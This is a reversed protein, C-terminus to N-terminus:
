EVEKAIVVLRRINTGVPTCTMLTLTKENEDQSLVSVDKNKVQKIEEIKYHHSDGHHQVEIEDGVKLTHLLAFVDKYRGDDWLYYSSHGTIFINGKEGPEATGPYHIVGRKLDDQFTKELSEWQANLLQKPDSFIVPVNKNIKPIILRTDPPLVNLHLATTLEPLIESMSPEDVVPVQIALPNSSVPLLKEEEEVLGSDATFLNTRLTQGSEAWWVKLIQSYAEANVAFFGMFFLFSSFLSVRLMYKFGMVLNSLRFFHFFTDGTQKLSFSMANRADGMRNKVSRLPRSFMSLSLRPLAPIQASPFHWKKKLIRRSVPLFTQRIEQIEREVWPASSELHPIVYYEWANLRSPGKKKRKLWRIGM